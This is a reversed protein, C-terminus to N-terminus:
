KKLSERLLKRISYYNETMIETQEKSDTLEKQKAMISLILVRLTEIVDGDFHNDPYITGIIAGTENTFTITSTVIPAITNSSYVVINGSLPRAANFKARPAGYAQGISGALLVLALLIVLINEIYWDIMKKM